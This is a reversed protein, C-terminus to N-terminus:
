GDICELEENRDGSEDEDTLEIVPKEELISTFMKVAKPSNSFNYDMDITTIDIGVDRCVGPFASVLQKPLFRKALFEVMEDYSMDDVDDTRAYKPCKAIIAARVSAKDCWKIQHAQISSAPQASKSEAVASKVVSSEKPERKDRKKRPSHHTESSSDELEDLKLNRKVNHRLESTISKKSGLSSTSHRDNSKSGRRSPSPTRTIVSTPSIEERKSHGKPRKSSSSQREQGVNNSPKRIIRKPSSSRSKRKPTTLHSRKASGPSNKESSKSRKKKPKAKSSEKNSNQHCLKKSQPKKLAPTHASSGVVSPVARFKQKHKNSKEKVM